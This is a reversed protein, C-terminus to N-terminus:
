LKKVISNLWIFSRLEKPARFMLGVHICWWGWCIGIGYIKFFSKRSVVSFLFPTLAFDEGNDRTDQYGGVIAIRM